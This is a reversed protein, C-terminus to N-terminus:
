PICGSGAFPAAAVCVGESCAGSACPTTADCAEGLLVAQRCVGGLCKSKYPCRHDQDCVDGVAVLADGVCVGGQCAAGVVCPVDPSCPQTVSARAVCLGGRCAATAHCRMDADCAEGVDAAPECTGCFDPGLICVSADDCVLSEIGYSCAGGTPTLGVWMQGCPGDLDNVQQACAVTELHAACAEVGEPSLALLGRDALSIYLPEYVANCAEDFAELCAPRDPVAMRGCRMYYDCFFGAVHECYGAVPIDAAATDAGATDLPVEATDLAAADAAATDASATDAVATDASATDAAATDPALTDGADSSAGGDGCGAVLTLALLVARTAASVKM